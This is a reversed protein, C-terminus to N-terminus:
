SRTRRRRNEAFLREPPFGKRLRVCFQCLSVHLRDAWERTTLTEGKYTLTRCRGRYDFAIPELGLAQGVTCGKRLRVDITVRPIGLKKAWESVTRREGRYALVKGKTRQRNAARRDTRSAAAPARESPAVPTEFARAVPWGRALRLRLVDADIGLRAAWGPLTLRFGLYEYTQRKM